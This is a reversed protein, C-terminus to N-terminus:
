VRKDVPKQLFNTYLNLIKQVDELLKAEPPMRVAIHMRGSLTLMVRGHFGPCHPLRLAAEANMSPHYFSVIGGREEISTFGADM